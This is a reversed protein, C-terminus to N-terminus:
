ARPWESALFSNSSIRPAPPSRAAGAPVLRPLGPAAPLRRAPPRLRAGLPKAPRKTSCANRSWGPEVTCSISARAPVSSSRSILSGEIRASNCFPRFCPLYSDRPLRQDSAAEAEAAALSSPEDPTGGSSSGSRSSAAPAGVSSAAPADAPSGAICSGADGSGSDSASPFPSLPLISVRLEVFVGGSIGLGTAYKRLFAINVFLAGDRNWLDVKQVIQFVQGFVDPQELDIDFTRLNIQQLRQEFPGVQETADTVNKRFRVFVPNGAMQRPHGRETLSAAPDRFGIDVQVPGSRPHERFELDVQVMPGVAILRDGHVEVPEAQLSLTHCCAIRPDDGVILQPSPDVELSVEERDAAARLRIHKAM